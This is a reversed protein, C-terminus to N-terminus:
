LSAFVDDGPVTVAPKRRSRGPFILPLPFGYAPRRVKKGTKMFRLRRLLPDEDKNHTNNKVVCEIGFAVFAAAGAQFSQDIVFDVPGACGSPWASSPHVEDIDGFRRTDSSIKKTLSWRKSEM